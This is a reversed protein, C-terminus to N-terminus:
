NLGVEQQAQAPRIGTNNDTAGTCIQCNCVTKSKQTGLKEILPRKSASCSIFNQTAAHDDGEAKNAVHAAIIALSEISNAIREYAAYIERQANDFYTQVNDAECHKFECLTLPELNECQTSIALIADLVNQKTNNFLFCLDDNTFKPQSSERNTM